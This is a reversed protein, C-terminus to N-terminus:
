EAADAGCHAIPGPAHARHSPTDTSRCGASGARRPGDARVGCRVSVATGPRVLGADSSAMRWPWRKRGSAFHKRMPGGPSIARQRMSMCMVSWESRAPRATPSRRLRAGYALEIPVHWYFTAPDFTASAAHVATGISRHLWRNVRAVPEHATPVAFQPTVAVDLDSTHRSM